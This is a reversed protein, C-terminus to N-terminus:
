GDKRCFESVMGSATTSMCSGSARGTARPRTCSRRDLSTEQRMWKSCRATCALRSSCRNGHCSATAHRVLIQRIAGAIVNTTGSSYQWRTGPAADLPQGSAYAAADPVRLLMAIVDSLPNAPGENFRLGSSMRLLHDLTIAHRADNASQWAAVPVPRDLSTAGDKVLIGVLANVVSKTMSWGVLPTDASIGEAYREAILRGDHVVVVARTRRLRAADPEAFAWDLVRELPDLRQYSADEQRTWLVPGPRRISLADPATLLACGFGERYTAVRRAFGLTHASVQRNVPDVQTAVVRRLVALADAGLDTALISEPSRHSVFVGSCLIRASYATGISALQYGVYLIFVVIAAATFGGAVVLTKRRTTV